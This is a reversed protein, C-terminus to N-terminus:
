FAPARDMQAVPAYLNEVDPLHSKFERGRAGLALARALSLWAGHVLVAGACNREARPATM